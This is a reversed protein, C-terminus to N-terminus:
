VVLQTANVLAAWKMPKMTRVAPSGVRSEAFCAMPCGNLRPDETGLSDYAGHRLM